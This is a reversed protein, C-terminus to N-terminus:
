PRQRATAADVIADVLPAPDFRVPDTTPLGTEGAAAAVVQRAAPEDLDYTNLCIGIVKSPCVPAAAREYIEVLESLPPIRVWPERGHYDGIFDRTSQHCLLLGRPMAGHLLGLTVGSYGPHILSGQGEVLVIDADKAAQLVLQEAAGAMFDAVVADVAIGWGEIFIGTQGTAVFRARHGRRGLADRLQLQATMKGVNCDSGVALVVFANVEAALGDAVPLGAPAKRVDLIRVGRRRALPGLESDDAIFTHLGSWIELGREIAARLWGRWEDPLRGGMPAIGILVATAGGGLALGETFDGVVPIAGGFGLVEQATRGARDRDFVGVIREPMYRICSNATKSSMPGFQGDALILFRPQGSPATV